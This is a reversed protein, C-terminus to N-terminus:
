WILLDELSNGTTFRVWLATMLSTGDLAMRKINLPYLRTIFLFICNAELFGTNKFSFLFSSLYLLSFDLLAHEQWWCDLNYEPSLQFFYYFLVIKDAIHKSFFELSNGYYDCFRRVYIEVYSHIITVPLCAYMHMHMGQYFIDNTEVM